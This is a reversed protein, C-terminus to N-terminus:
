QRIELVGNDLSVGSVEIGVRSLNERIERKWYLLDEDGAMDGIGVGLLPHEKWEGKRPVLVLFEEQNHTEGVAVSGDDAVEIDVTDGEQELRIGTM